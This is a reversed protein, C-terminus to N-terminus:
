SWMCKLLKWLRSLKVLFVETASNNRSNSWVQRWNAVSEGTILLGEPYVFVFILRKSNLITM